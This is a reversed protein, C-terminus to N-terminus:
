GDGPALGFAAGLGFPPMNVYVGESRGAEVVYAEHWVGVASTARVRADYDAWAPRGAGEPPLCELRM